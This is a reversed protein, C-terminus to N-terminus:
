GHGMYRAGETVIDGFEKGNVNAPRFIGLGEYLHIIFTTLGENFVKFLRVELLQLIVGANDM